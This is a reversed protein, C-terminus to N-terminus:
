WRGHRSGVGFAKVRVATAPPTAHLAPGCVAQVSRRAVPTLARLAAPM